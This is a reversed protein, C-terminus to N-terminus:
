DHPDLEKLIRNAKDQKYDYEEPLTFPHLQDILFVTPEIKQRLLDEVLKSLSIGKAAAYQKAATILQEDITLNLPKTM